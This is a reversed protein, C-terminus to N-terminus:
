VPEIVKFTVVYEEENDSNRRETIASVITKVKLQVIDGIEPLMDSYGESLTGTIKEILHPTPDPMGDLEGAGMIGEMNTVVEQGDHKLTITTEM